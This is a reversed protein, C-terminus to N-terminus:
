FSHCCILASLALPSGTTFSFPSGSGPATAYGTYTFKNGVTLPFLNDTIPVVTTGPSTSDEECGALILALAMMAAVCGLTLLQHTRKM